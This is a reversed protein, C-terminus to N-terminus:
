RQEFHRQNPPPLLEGHWSEGPEILSGALCWQDDERSMALFRVVSRRVNRPTGPTWYMNIAAKRRAATQTPIAIRLLIQRNKFRHPVEVMTYAGTGSYQFCCCWDLAPLGTRSFGVGGYGSPWAFELDGVRWRTQHPRLWSSCPGVVLFVDRQTQSEAVETSVDNCAIRLVGQWLAPDDTDTLYSKIEDYITSMAKTWNGAPFSSPRRNSVPWITINPRGASSVSHRSKWTWLELEVRGRAVLPKNWVLRHGGM